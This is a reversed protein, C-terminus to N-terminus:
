GRVIRQVRPMAPAFAAVLADLLTQAGASHDAGVNCVYIDLTVVGREPWTHLAVHSEALLLVGTVGQPRGQADVFPHFLEGVCHLSAADAARRCLSRLADLDNLLPRAACGQLDAILHLGPVPANKWIAAVGRGSM